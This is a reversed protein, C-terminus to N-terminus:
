STYNSIQEISKWQYYKRQEIKSGMMYFGEGYDKLIDVKTIAVFSVSFDIKVLQERM